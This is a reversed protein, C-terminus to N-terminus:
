IEFKSWKNNFLAYTHTFGIDKLTSKVTDFHNTLTTKDHSDSTLVIKGGQQKIIELLRFSPCPSTRLGRTINGTNVEFISDAKLATKVASEAIEWYKKNNFFYEKEKEEFKTIIDFHGIVDPKRALIYDCFTSYYHKAFAIEDGNFVELCKLFYTSFGSDIPYHKDNVTAYHNSGIIYDYKNRDAWVTRDEETGLYIQIKNAYKQKVRNVENIYGDTDKMCYRLDHETHAHSSFGLSVLGREIAEKVIEEVSNKGDCFTSHVHFDALM